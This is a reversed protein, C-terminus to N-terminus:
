IDAFTCVKINQAAFPRYIYALFPHRRYINPLTRASRVQLQVSGHGQEEPIQERRVLLAIGVRLRAGPHETSFV